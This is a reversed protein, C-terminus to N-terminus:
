VASDPAAESQAADRYTPFRGALRVRGPETPVTTAIRGTDPHSFVEILEPVLLGPAQGYFANLLVVAATREPNNLAFNVAAPGGADHGVIVVRELKLGAVVAEVDALQQAFSYLAGAPKDSAGFGLFDLTVVRRGAAVFHPIVPDYIRGNDPFGHLLLFAPGNGPFDRAYVAGDGRPIRHEQYPPLNFQDTM